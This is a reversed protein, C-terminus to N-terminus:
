FKGILKIEPELLIGTKAQVRDQVRRLLGYIDSAKANGLNVIFNAHKESVMANGKRWGKCGAEEILRGAFQDKPNKFVSGASAFSVPQSDKRAKFYREMRLKVLAMDGEELKLMVELIIGEGPLSSNRYGFKIENRGYAKLRGEFSYITVTKVYNAICEGYAGANVMVAGGLTGPIGVAFALSKLGAKYTAQVLKPLTIAAGAQVYRGDINIRGFYGGLRLVIGKFGNDSVLLNSGRGVILLPIGMERALRTTVRLEELSDAIAFISAPGGAKFTSHRAMPENLCIESNLDQKLERYLPAFIDHNALTMDQM